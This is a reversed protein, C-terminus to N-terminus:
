KKLASRLSCKVPCWFTLVALIAVALYIGLVPMSVIFPRSSQAAELKAWPIAIAFPVVAAPVAGLWVPILGSLQRRSGGVHSITKLMPACDGVYKVLHVWIIQMAAVMLICFIWCLLLLRGEQQAVITDIGSQANVVRYHGPLEARLTKELSGVAQVTPYIELRTVTMDATLEQMLADSVYVNIRSVNQGGLAIKTVLSVERRVQPDLADALYCVGDAAAGEPLEAAIENSNLSLQGSYDRSPHVAATFVTGDPIYLFFDGQTEQIRAAGRLSRLQALVEPEIRGSSSTIVIPMNQAGYVRQAYIGLYRSFLLLFVTLLPVLIFLSRLFPPKTQRIWLMRVSASRSRCAKFRQAPRSPLLSVSLVCLCVLFYFLIELATAKPDMHFVEWVLGADSTNGLFNQYLFKMVCWSLGVAGGAALPFLIGFEAFFIGAIQAKAAGLARLASVEQSFGAIHNRYAGYVILGSFLLLAINLYLIDQMHADMYPDNKQGNWDDYAYIQLNLRGGSEAIAAHVPALVRDQGAIFAQFEEASVLGTPVSTYKRWDEESKFTLYITGDEYYPETLEDIGRFLEVDEEAAGTIHIAQNKSTGHMQQLMGYSLSDRYVSIVLPLLFAGLMIWLLSLHRLTRHRFSQFLYSFTM